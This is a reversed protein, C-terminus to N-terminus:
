GAALPASSTRGPRLAGPPAVAAEVPTGTPAVRAVVAQFADDITDFPGLRGYGVVNPYGCFGSREKRIVAVSADEDGPSEALVIWESGDPVERLRLRPGTPTGVPRYMDLLLRALGKARGLMPTDGEISGVIAGRLIVHFSQAFDEPERVGAEAALTAIQTRVRLAAPAAGGDTFQGAASMVTFLEAVNLGGAVFGDYVDFLAMLQDEPTPGAKALEETLSATWAAARHEMAAVILDQMTSFHAAVDVASVEAEAAVQELSVNELGHRGVLRYTTELVRERSGTKAPTDVLTMEPLNTM